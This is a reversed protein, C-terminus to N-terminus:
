NIKSGDWLIKKEDIYCDRQTVVDALWRSRSSGRNNLAVKTVSRGTIEVWICRIKMASNLEIAIIGTIIQGPYYVKSPNHLVVNFEKVKGM